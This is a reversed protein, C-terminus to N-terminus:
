PASPRDRRRKRTRASADPLPSVADIGVVDHGADCLAAAVHRGLLGSSGTVVVKM